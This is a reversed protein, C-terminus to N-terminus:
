FSPKGIKLGNTRAVNENFGKYNDAITNTTYQAPYKLGSLMQSQTEGTAGFMALTVASHISAPSIIM